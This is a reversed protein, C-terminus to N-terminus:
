SFNVFMSEPFAKEHVILNKHDRLLEFIFLFTYLLKYSEFHIKKEIM